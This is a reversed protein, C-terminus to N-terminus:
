EEGDSNAFEFRRAYFWAVGLPNPFEKLQVSDRSINSITFEMGASAQEGLWVMANTMSTPIEICVVKDGVQFPNM